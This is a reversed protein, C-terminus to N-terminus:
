GPEPAKAGAPVMWRSALSEGDTRELVTDVAWWEALVRAATVDIVVYGHSDFDCWRVHPLAGRFAREAALSETRYGWGLKDDLNQSTISGTIFEPAITAEGDPGPLRLESAISIHIDGSLVVADGSVEDRLHRLLAKKEHPYGDWQDWDPGAGDGDILKLKLMGALAEDPIEPAWTRSMVSPNAILKWPAASAALADFLWGRQEPGYMSRAPDDMAPAPVPEDRRSRVDTLFLEALDGLRVSRFVRTPDSADPQRAPVWEWKAQWAAAVRDAWSGDRADDHETSGGRWAGDAFEHDDVTAIIPHTAHLRQLDPDRHYQAYRQRYDALTKCEHRPEFDRGIDAGPTQSAPPKDAAEYIYDGLHLLFDLDDRDAIRGYANFFGANHKACSVIAFRVRELAGAPLTRTRGVPSTGGAAGFGFYYTTAPELGGVDVNVTHDHDASAVTTGEAVVDRMQADRAITWSADVEPEDSTVRTWLVVRDALPDGSAIGHLFPNLRM